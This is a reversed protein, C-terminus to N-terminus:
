TLEISMNLENAPNMAKSGKVETVFLAQANTITQLKSPDRMIPADKISLFIGANLALGAESPIENANLKDWLISDMMASAQVIQQVEDYKKQKERDIILGSVPQTDM